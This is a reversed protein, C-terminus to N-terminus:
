ENVVDEFEVKVREMEKKLVVEPRVKPMTYVQQSQESERQSKDVTLSSRNQVQRNRHREKNKHKAESRKSQRSHESHENRAM